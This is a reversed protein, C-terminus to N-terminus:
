QFPDNEMTDMSQHAILRNMNYGVVACIFQNCTVYINSHGPGDTLLDFKSQKKKVDVIKIINIKFIWEYEPGYVGPYPLQKDGSIIM